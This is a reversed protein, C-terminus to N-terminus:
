SMTVMIALRHGLYLSHSIPVSQRLGAFEAYGEVYFCPSFFHGTYFETDLDGAGSLSQSSFSIGCNAFIDEAEPAICVLVEEVQAQIVRAEQTTTTGVVSPVIFLM